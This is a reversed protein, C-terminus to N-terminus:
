YLNKLQSIKDSVFGESLSIRAETEKKFIKPFLNWHSGQCAEKMEEAIDKLVGLQRLTHKDKEVAAKLVSWNNLGSHHSKGRILWFCISLLISQILHCMLKLQVQATMNLLPSVPSAAPFYDQTGTPTHLVRAEVNHAVTVLEEM